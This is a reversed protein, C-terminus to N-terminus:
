IILRFKCSLPESRPASPALEAFPRSLRWCWGFLCGEWADRWTWSRAELQSQAFHILVSTLLTAGCGETNFITEGIALISMLLGSSGDNGFIILVKGPSAVNDSLLPHSFLLLDRSTPRAMQLPTM